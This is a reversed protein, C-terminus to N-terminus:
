CAYDTSASSSRPDEHGAVGLPLRGALDWAVLVAIFAAAIVLNATVLRRARRSLAIVAPVATLEDRV